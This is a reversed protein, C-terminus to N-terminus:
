TKPLTGKLLPAYNSTVFMAAICHAKRNDPKIPDWDRYGCELVPIPRFVISSSHVIVIGPDFLKSTPGVYVAAVFLIICTWTIGMRETLLELSLKASFLIQM